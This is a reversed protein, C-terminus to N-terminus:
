AHVLWAAACALAAAGPLAAAVGWQAASARVDVIVPMTGTYGRSLMALHVREGREYSRIFLAGASKAVVPLQRVDRAQFGRSERAVKMRGMEGTIVGSYRLMFQMIQVLLQPMRLREMGLLLDRLQTTAALLISAVVGLTGKALINWAGLLGNHSVTLGLFETKEGGALFPLAVAFVVFPVEVVVRRLVFGAPVRGVVAVAALLLAYVGFAWFRERPTAVVAFVFLVVAVLKCQPPLRHLPTDGPRYFDHAHGAGM